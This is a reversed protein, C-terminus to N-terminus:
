NANGRSLPVRHPMPPPARNLTDPGVVTSGTRVLFLLPLPLPPPLALAIAGVLRRVQGREFNNRATELVRKGSNTREGFLIIHVNADTGAGRVDSTLVQIKYTCLAGRPKGGKGIPFLTRETQRDGEDTAFWQDSDFVMAPEGPVQVTVQDLHWAPGLGSNDHGIRLREISGIAAEM